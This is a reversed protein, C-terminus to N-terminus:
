AGWLLLEHLLSYVEGTDRVYDLSFEYALQDLKVSYNNDLDYSPCQQNVLFPVKWTNDTMAPQSM